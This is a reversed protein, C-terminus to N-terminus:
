GRRICSSEQDSARDSAPSTRLVLFVFSDLLVLNRPNYRKCYSLFSLVKPIILEETLFIALLLVHQQCNVGIETRYSACPCLLMESPLGSCFHM